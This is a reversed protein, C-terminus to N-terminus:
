AGALASLHVRLVSEMAHLAKAQPVLNNAPTDMIHATMAGRLLEVLYRSTITAAPFRGGRSTLDPVWTTALAFLTARDIKGQLISIIWSRAARRRKNLLRLPVSEPRRGAARQREIEVFGVHEVLTRVVLQVSDAVFLELEALGHISETPGIAPQLLLSSHRAAHPPNIGGARSSASAM